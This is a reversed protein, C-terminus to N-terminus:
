VYPSRDNLTYVYMNSYSDRYKWVRRFGSVLNNDALVRWHIESEAGSLVLWIYKGYTFIQHSSDNLLSPPNPDNSCSMAMIAQKRLDTLNDKM